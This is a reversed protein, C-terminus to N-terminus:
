FAIWLLYIFGSLAVLGHTVALWKPIRKNNIDRLFVIVGGTAAIVFLTVGETAGPKNKFAYLVLIFLGAAALLGHLVVMVKSTPRNRLILVLLLSGIIAALAFFAIATFIM